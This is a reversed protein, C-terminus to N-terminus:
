EKSKDKGNEPDLYGETRLFHLVREVERVRETDTFIFSIAGDTSLRVIETGGIAQRLGCTFFTMLELHDKFFRANALDDGYFSVSRLNAGYAPVRAHSFSLVYDGPSMSITKVLPDIGIQVKRLQPSFMGNLERELLHPVIERGSGLLLLRSGSRRCVVSYVFTDSDPEEGRLPEPSHYSYVEWGTKGVLNFFKLRHCALLDAREIVGSYSDLLLGSLTLGNLSKTQEIAM